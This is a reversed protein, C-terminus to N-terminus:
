CYLKAENKKMDNFVDVFNPLFLQLSFLKKRNGYLGIIQQEIDITRYITRKFRNLNM